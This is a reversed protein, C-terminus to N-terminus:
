SEFVFPAVIFLSSIEVSDSEAAVLTSALYVDYISNNNFCMFQKAQM